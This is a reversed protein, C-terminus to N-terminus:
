VREKYSLILTELEELVKKLRTKIEEGIYDDDGEICDTAEERVAKILTEILFKEADKYNDFKKYITDLLYGNHEVFYETEGAYKFHKGIYWHCDRDKHHDVLCEYWLEVLKAIM